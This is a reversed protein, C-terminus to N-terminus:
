KAGDVQRFYEYIAEAEEQTLGLDTMPTKYEDLLAKAVPDSKQMEMPNLAMNMIWEPTRRETVGQLPPGILKTDLRHCVACKSTFLMEGKAALDANFPKVEYDKVPGVGKSDSPKSIDVADGTAGIENVENTATTDETESTSEKTGGGGCSYLFMASGLCCAILFCKKM